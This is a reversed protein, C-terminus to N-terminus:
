PMPAKQAVEDIKVRYGRGDKEPKTEQTRSEPDGHLVSAKHIRHKKLIHGNIHNDNYFCKTKCSIFSNLLFSETSLSVALLYWSRGDIWFCINVVTKMFDISWTSKLWYYIGVWNLTSADKINLLSKLRSEIYLYLPRFNDMFMIEFIAINEQKGVRYLRFAFSIDSCPVDSYRAHM